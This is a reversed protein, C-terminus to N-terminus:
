SVLITERMLSDCTSHIATLWLWMVNRWNCDYQNQYLQSIAFRYWSFYEWYVNTLILEDCSKYSITDKVTQSIRMWPPQLWVAPLLSHGVVSSFISPFHGQSFVPIMISVHECFCEAHGPLFSTLFLLLLTLSKAHLLILLTVLSIWDRLDNNNNTLLVAERVQM